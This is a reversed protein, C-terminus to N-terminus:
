PCPGMLKKKKLYPSKTPYSNQISCIEEGVAAAQFTYLIVWKPAQNKDEDMPSHWQHHSSRGLFLM